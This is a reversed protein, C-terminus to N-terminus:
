KFISPTYITNITIYQSLECILKNNMDFVQTTFTSNMLEAATIPEATKVYGVMAGCMGGVIASIIALL